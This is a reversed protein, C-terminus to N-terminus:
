EETIMRIVGSVDNLTQSFLFPKKFDNSVKEVLEITHHTFRIPSTFMFCADYKELNLKLCYEEVNPLKSSGVGPLDWLIIEKIEPHSYDAPELTTECM